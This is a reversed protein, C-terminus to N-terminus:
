KFFDEFIKLNTNYDNKIFLEECSIYKQNNDKVMLVCPSDTISYKEFLITKSDTNEVIKDYLTTDQSLLEKFITSSVKSSIINKEDYPFVLINYIKENNQENLTKIINNIKKLCDSCTAKTNSLVLVAKKSISDLKVIKGRITLLEIENSNSNGACCILTILLSLFARLINIKM